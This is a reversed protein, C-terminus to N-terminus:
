CGHKVAARNAKWSSWALRATERRSIQEDLSALERVRAVFAPESLTQRVDHAGIVVAPENEGSALAAAIAQLDFLVAEASQYRDRPDKRLLRQILEDLARPVAIGLSRLEPVCATMHDFLIAGLASGTFPPRGALCHFLTVGAAYLDSAETLDQEISGAQEPSLYLAADLSQRRLQTEDLEIAASSQFDVLTAASIPGQENVVINSPRVNRHLVKHQHMDRLASLVAVGVALAEAIALQRSELCDRLPVGPVRAYVVLLDDGERGVHLIEALWPSHLRKLHTCEHELRMLAAPHVADAAVMKVVVDRGDVLDTGAYTRTGESASM